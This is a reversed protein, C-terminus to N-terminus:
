RTGSDKSRRAPSGRRSPACGARRRRRCGARTSTTTVPTAPEPLLESTFPDIGAPARYRLTISLPSHSRGSPKKVARLASCFERGIELSGTLFRM